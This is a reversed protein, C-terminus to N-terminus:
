ADSIVAFRAFIEEAYWHESARRRIVARHAPDYAFATMATLDEWISFTGQVGVPAEGFALRFSSGPRSTLDKAVPPVARLFSVLRTPRIRAHTLVAIPGDGAADDFDGAGFPTQGSWTGRSRTPRLEIRRRSRALRDWAAILPGREFVGAAMASPWCTLMAFRTLNVHRVAFTEGSGTGLLKGFPLARVDRRQRALLSM